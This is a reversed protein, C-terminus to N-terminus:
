YPVRQGSDPDDAWAFPDDLGRELEPSLGWDMPAEVHTGSGAAKAKNARKREKELIRIERKSMTAPRAAAARVGAAALACAVCYPPKAAGFAYVLCENCFESGCNRCRAESLEFHHVFCHGDTALM